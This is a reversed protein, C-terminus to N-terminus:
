PKPNIDKNAELNNKIAEELGTKPKGKKEKPKYYRRARGRREEWQRLRIVAYLCFLALAAILVIGAFILGAYVLLTHKQAPKEVTFSQKLRTTKNEYHGTLELEYSGAKLKGPYETITKTRDITIDKWAEWVVIGEKLVKEELYLPLSADKNYAWIATFNFLDDSTVLHLPHLAIELILETEREVNITRFSSAKYNDYSVQVYFEYSGILLGAPLKLSTKEIKEEYLGMFLTDSGAAIKKGGKELWFDVIVDGSINAMGKMLYTFDLEEGPQIASDLTLIKIDFLKTCKNNWCLAGEKCDANSTCEKITEQKFSSGGGGGGGSLAAACAGCDASCSSCSEGSECNSNGCYDEASYATFGTVNFELTGTALSYNIIACIDSACATNDRLIRPSNFTLNYLYLRASANLAPLAASDIEIRNFSINVYSDINAGGSLDISNLFSIKGYGSNEITFNSLNSIDIESVNSTNGAFYTTKVIALKRTESAGRHNNSDTCNISWNYAGASLTLNFSNSVGKAANLLTQNIANNVILSCNVSYSDSVNYIFTINGDNDGSNNSPSILSVSPANADITITRQATQNANGAMDAAFAQYTYIVDSLDSQNSYFEWKDADYKRINSFYHQQIEDASLSKNWISVEDIAGNFYVGIYYPAGIKLTVDTDYGDDIADNTNTGNLEGDIYISGTTGAITVAVHHWQNDTVNKTSPIGPNTPGTDINCNVSGQTTHVYCEYGKAGDSSGRKSFIRPYNAMVGTKIWAMFTFNEGPSIDLADETTNISSNVGNFVFAGHYKGSETWVANLVNGNNGNGSADIAYTSNEGIASLNDFSMMLALSAKYFTYNTANWNWIFSNLNLETMSINIEISNDTNLTSNDPTGAAYSILPYTSDVIVTRTGTQNINGSIDIAYAKYSYSTEALGTFNKRYPYASANYTSNIEAASLARNWIQVEDMVGDFPYPGNGVKGLLLNNTNTTLTGSVANSAVKVGNIYMNVESSNLTVAVHYWTYPQVSNWNYDTNAPTIGPTYLRLVNNGSCAAAETCLMMSYWTGYNSKGFFAQWDYYDTTRNVQNFKVWAIYTFETPSLSGSHTINIFDDSGDFSLARGIKGNATTNSAFNQMVGNNSYSSNDYVTGNSLVSEFNLWAVLSRNWDVFASHLNADSSSANIYASNAAQYSNNEPTPSAFSIDPTIADRIEITNSTISSGDAKGDNPIVEAKWVQGLRIEDSVIRDTPNNYLELIQSASLPRSYIQVDDITGNWYNDVRGIDYDISANKYFSAPASATGFYQGNRYFYYNTGDKVWVVHHWIGVDTFFNNFVDGYRVACTSDYSDYHLIGDTLGLWLGPKRCPTSQKGIFGHYAGHNIINTKVWVSITFNESNNFPDSINMYDNGDFEYAGKGDYGSTNGWTAGSVVANRGFSSYDKTYTSNSGGEFPLNLDLIPKDDVIWNYVLKITDGDTDSATAYATLNETTGNLGITSNVIVSSISPPSNEAFTEIGGTDGGTAFGTISPNIYLCLFCVSLIIVCAIAEIIRKKKVM